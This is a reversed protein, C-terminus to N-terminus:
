GDGHVEMRFGLLPTDNNGIFGAARLETGDVSVCPHAGRGIQMGIPGEFQVMRQCAACTVRIEIALSHPAASDTVDADTPFMRNVDVVANFHEHPCGSM